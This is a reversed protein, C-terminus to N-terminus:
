LYRRNETIIYSCIENIHAVRFSIFDEISRMVSKGGIADIWSKPISGLVEKIFQRNLLIQINNAEHRMQEDDYGCWLSLNDYVVKNEKLITNYLYSDDDRGRIFFDSDYNPYPGKSFIHSFDIIYLLGSAVSMLINGDHRDFNNLIHDLLIIKETERNKIHGRIITPVTNNLEVSYFCLGANREDIEELDNISRISDISLECIGYDPVTIGIKRALSFGIFENVIVATGRANNPYKVIAMSDDSLKCKIPETVGQDLLDIIEIVQLM